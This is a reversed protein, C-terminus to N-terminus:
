LGFLQAGVQGLAVVCEHPLGLPVLAATLVATLLPQVVPRLGAVVVTPWKM